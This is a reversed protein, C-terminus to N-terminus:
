RTTDAPSRPRANGDLLPQNLRCPMRFEASQQVHDQRVFIGSVLTHAPRHNNHRLLNQRAALVPGTQTIKRRPQDHDEHRSSSVVPWLFIDTFM